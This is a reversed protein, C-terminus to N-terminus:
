MMARRIERADARMTATIGPSNRASIEPCSRPSRKTQQNVFATVPADSNSLQAFIKNIKAEPMATSTGWAPAVNSLASTDNCTMACKKLEDCSSCHQVTLSGEQCYESKEHCSYSSQEISSCSNTWSICAKSIKVCIVSWTFYTYAHLVLVAEENTAEKKTTFRRDLCVSLFRCHLVLVEFKAQLTSPWACVNFWCWCKCCFINIQAKVEVTQQLTQCVALRDYGSSSKTRTLIM